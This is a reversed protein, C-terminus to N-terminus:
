WIGSVFKPTVTRKQSLTKLVVWLFASPPAFFLAASELLYDKMRSYACVFSKSDRQATTKSAGPCDLSRRSSKTCARRPAERVRLLDFEKSEGRASAGEAKSYYAPDSSRARPTHATRAPPFKKLIIISSKPARTALTHSVKREVVRLRTSFAKCDEAM